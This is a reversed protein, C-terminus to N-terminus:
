RHGWFDRKKIKVMRGDPHHWVIGEIPWMSDFFDRVLGFMEQPEEEEYSCLDLRKSGHRWLEHRTLGYPNRQVKPGVLEYTGDAPADGEAVVAIPLGPLTRVTYEKMAHNFLAERHWKDEPGDGVPVWYSMRKFDDAVAVPIWGDLLEVPDAERRKYLRGKIM